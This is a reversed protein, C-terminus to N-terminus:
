RFAIFFMRKLFSMINVVIICSLVSEFSCPILGSIQDPNLIERARLSRLFFMCSIVFFLILQFKVDLIHWLICSNSNSFPEIISTLKKRGHSLHTHYFIGIAARYAELSIM